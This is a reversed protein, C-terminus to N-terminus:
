DTLKSNYKNWFTQRQINDNFRLCIDHYYSGFVVDKGKINHKKCIDNIYYVKGSDRVDSASIDAGIYKLMEVIRRTLKPQKNWDRAKKTRKVIFDEDALETIKETDILPTYYTRFRCKDAYAILEDSVTIFRESPVNVGEYLKPIRGPVIHLKNGNFDEWKIERIESYDRGRIGEFLCLLIFADSPNPLEKAMELLEERTIIKDAEINGILAHLENTHISSYNNIKLGKLEEYHHKGYSLCWETYANLQSNINSLLEFSTFELAIYTDLIEKITFLSLDKKYKDEYKAFKTFARTIVDSKTAKKLELYKQKIENM